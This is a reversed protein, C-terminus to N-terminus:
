RRRRLRAAEGPGPGPRSLARGRRRIRGQRRSPVPRRGALPRHRGRRLRPGARHSSRRHPRGRRRLPRGRRRAPQPRLRRHPALRHGMQAATRNRRPRHRVRGTGDVAPAPRGRPRPPEDGAAVRLRPGAMMMAVRAGTLAALRETHGVFGPSSLAAREKSLPATCLAQAAGTLCANAARDVAGLAIAGAAEHTPTAALSGVQVIGADLKVGRLAAARELVHRDGFVIPQLAARVASSALALAVVEPGIGLPDGMSVAVRIM